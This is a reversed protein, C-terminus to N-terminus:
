RIQAAFGIHRYSFMIAVELFGLDSSEGPVIEVKFRAEPRTAPKAAAMMECGASVRSDFILL